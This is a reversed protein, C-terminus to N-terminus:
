AMPAARFRCRVVTVAAALYPAAVAVCASTLAFTARPLPLYTHLLHCVAAPWRLLTPVRGVGDPGRNPTMRSICLGV